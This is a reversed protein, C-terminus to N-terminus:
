GVIMFLGYRTGAVLATVGHPQGGDHVHPVGVARPVGCLAGGGEAVFVLRGGECDADGSLPVQLTRAAADCHLGIWRGTAATRRVAIADAAVGGLAAELAGVAHEGVVDALKRRPLLLKFDTPTSGSRVAAAVDGGVGDDGATPEGCGAAAWAADVLGVLAACAAPPLVAMAAQPAPPAPPPLPPLAATHRAYRPPRTARCQRAADDIAPPHPPTHPLSPSSLWAGGIASAAESAGVFVGIDGVQEALWDMM